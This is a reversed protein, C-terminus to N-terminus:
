NEYYNNQKFFEVIRIDMRRINRKTDNSSNLDKLINEVTQSTPLFNLEANIVEKPHLAEKVLKFLNHEVVYNDVSDFGIRQYRFRLVFCWVFAREIFQEIEQNGFKDIYYITICEFLSKIYSEGERYSFDNKYILYVLKESSTKLNVNQNNKLFDNKFRENIGIYHNVFEFFRRGNLMIDDLQFPFSMYSGDIKRKYEKNYEDVFYHAIQLPRVFPYNDIKSLSIGKFMDVHEKGFYRAHSNNSWRKIRFLFNAFLLSLDRSNHREWNEVIQTQQELEEGGLERLHFAKLLDHPYLDKGRSNQSDFFQFAETEDHIFFVVVQFNEIFNHITRDDFNQISRKLLLYNNFINEASLKNSYSLEVQNLKLHLEELLLRTSKDFKENNKTLDFLAHIVLRLTTYRQQGDVIDYFVKVEGNIRLKNCHIVISGFRYHPKNYFTRIDEVLQLVTKAQWKYPRQYEPIRINEFQIFEKVSFIDAYNETLINTEMIGSM